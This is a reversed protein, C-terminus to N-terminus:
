KFFLQTFTEIIMDTCCTGLLMFLFLFFFPVIVVNSLNVQDNCIVACLPAAVHFGYVDHQLVGAQHAHLDLVNGHVVLFLEPQNENRHTQHALPQFLHLNSHWYVILGFFGPVIRVLFLILFLFLFSYIQSEQFLKSGLRQQSEKKGTERHEVFVFLAYCFHLRVSVISHKVRVHKFHVFVRFLQKNHTVGDPRGNCVPDHLFHVEARVVIVLTKCFRFACPDDGGIVRGVLFSVSFWTRNANTM